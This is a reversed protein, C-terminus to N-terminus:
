LITRSTLLTQVIARVNLARSLSVVAFHLPFASPCALPCVLSCAFFVIYNLVGGEKKWLDPFM